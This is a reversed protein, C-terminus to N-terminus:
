ENARKSIHRWLFFGLLTVASASILSVSLNVWFALGVKGDAAQIGFLYGLWLLFYTAFLVWFVTLSACLVEKKHNVKQNKAHYTMQLVWSLFSMTAFSLSFACALVLFLEVDSALGIDQGFTQNLWTWTRESWWSGLWWRTLLYTNPLSSLSLVVYRVIKM